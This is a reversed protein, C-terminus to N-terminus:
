RSMLSRQASCSWLALPRAWGALTMAWGVRTGTSNNRYYLLLNAHVCFDCIVHDCVSCVRAVPTLHSCVLVFAFVPRLISHPVSMGQLYPAGSLALLEGWESAEVFVAGEFQLTRKSFRSSNAPSYWDALQASVFADWGGCQVGAQVTREIAKVYLYLVHSFIYVFSRALLPIGKVCTNCVIREFDRALLYAHMYDSVTVSLVRTGDASTQVDKIVTNYYVHLNPQAAIAPLLGRELFQEPLFCYTSVQRASILVGGMIIIM